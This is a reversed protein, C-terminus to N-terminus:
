VARSCVSGRVCIKIAVSYDIDNLLTADVIIALAVILAIMQKPKKLHPKQNVELRKHKTQQQQQEALVFLVFLVYYLDYM